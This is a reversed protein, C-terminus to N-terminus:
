YKIKRKKLPKTNLPMKILLNYIITLLNDDIQHTTPNISALIM